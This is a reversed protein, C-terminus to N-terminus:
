DLDMPHPSAVIAIVLLVMAPLKEDALPPPTIFFALEM